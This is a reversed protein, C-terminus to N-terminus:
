IKVQYKLRAITEYKGILAMIEFIGPSNTRGTLAARIPQAVKGFKLNNNKAYEKIIPKINEITWETINELISAIESLMRKNEDNLQAAANEDINLPITAYIFQSMEILEVITKARLQLEPLAKIITKKNENLGTIDTKLDLEKALSIMIEYLEEPESQRIYIANINALKVFDFRAAGKNLDKLDFWEILQETSFIEEDGHSWGLRALYNRIAAPLYGMKRYANVGLAGHRKSLKAGDAGHILPIHAMEPLEWGLAQYIIIQKAANTLHDDGRIIHTVAMDHDDVVVALMYTPTGDSRLIIFDDLSEGKFVVDGQVHDHVIIDKKADLKIRIVPKINQPALEQELERCHGNYKAPNGSKMADQRMKTLQEKSCYCKYAKGSAVLQEAIERHREINAIQSIPEGEWSIGLWNLGDLIAKIAEKTSRVKDTDEIRLLMKGNYKKAYVWNFLATRAGGIHLFGTPSPAFRTIIQKPM